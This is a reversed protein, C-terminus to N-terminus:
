MEMNPTLAVRKECLICHSETTPLWNGLHSTSIRKELQSQRPLRPFDIRTQSLKRWTAEKEERLMENRKGKLSTVSLLSSWSGM